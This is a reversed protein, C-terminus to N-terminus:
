FYPDVNLLHKLNELWDVFLKAYEKILRPRANRHGLNCIDGSYDLYEPNQKTKNEDERMKCTKNRSQPHFPPSTDM